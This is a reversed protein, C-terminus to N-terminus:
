GGGGAMGGGGPAPFSNRASERRVGPDNSGVGVAESPSLGGEDEVFLAIFGVPLFAAALVQITKRRRPRRMSDSWAVAGYTNLAAYVSWLYWYGVLVGLVVVWGVTMALWWGHIRLIRM